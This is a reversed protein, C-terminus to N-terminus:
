CPCGPYHVRYEPQHCFTVNDGSLVNIEGSPTISGHPGSTATITYSPIIREEIRINDLVMEFQDTSGHHRFAVFVQQGALNNLEVTNEKWTTNSLTESFLPTFDAPQMGSTSYLVSYTEAPYDADQSKVWFKIDIQNSTVTFKPSILWNDPTLPGSANAYSASAAAYPGTQPSYGADNQAVFWNRNDGDIDLMAWCSPPMLGESFVEHIPLSVAHCLTKASTSVGSSYENAPNVSWIRYHYNTNESLGTHSFAANSGAYIVTGGGPITQGAGYAIGDSPTGFTGSPSWALLVPNNSDNKQWILNIQSIDTPFATFYLPNAVNDMTGAAYLLAAHANLRGTGLLGIYDPNQSYHNDTTNRIIQALQQATYQGPALSLILAAVGSVHPCAMSTGSMYNYADTSRTNYIASGPASVDIWSGYNSFSSKQDRNTTSAVAFAGGYYAPYWEGDSNDNGAAFISIGGSMIGGGGHTNFYDIATIVSQNYVGPDEYGWSNQTIAAGNDAAYYFALDFGGSGSSAFVQLSMIRVGDGSGSGGAIGAVGTGNNSVAAVTGAVHTGHNDSTITSSNTVFNYGIGAWMNGALDPHDYKVGGDIVAVIVQSSGKHIEWAEPMSIDAGPTGESGLITQGTNNFSWQRSAFEPDNPMWTSSQLIDKVRNYNMDLSEKRKM